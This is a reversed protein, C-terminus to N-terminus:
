ASFIKTEGDEETTVGWSAECVDGGSDVCVFVFLCVSVRVFVYARVSSAYVPWLPVCFVPAVSHLVSCCVAICQLAHLLSSFAHNLM